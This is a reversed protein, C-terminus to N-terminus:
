PQMLEILRSKLQTRQLQYESEGLHGAEFADDLEAIQKVITETSLSELIPSKDNQRDRWAFIGATSLALGGGVLLILRLIERSSLQTNSGELASNTKLTIDYTITHGVEPTSTVEYVKYNRNNFVQDQVWEINDGVLDLHSSEVLLTTVGTVPYEIPQVISVTNDIPLLYSYQVYHETNPLVPQTDVIIQGNSSLIFRNPDTHDRQLQAGDPLVFGVSVPEVLGYRNDQIYSRDSMNVMDIVEIVYLGQSSLNVQTARSIIALASPEAGNEYVTVDIFM